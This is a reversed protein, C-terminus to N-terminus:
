SRETPQASFTTQARDSPPPMQHPPRQGNILFADWMGTWEFIVQLEHTKIGDGVVKLSFRYVGHVSTIKRFRTLSVEISLRFDAQEEETVLFEALKSTGGPIDLASFRNNEAGVWQVQFNEAYTTDSWENEASGMREIKTLLVRCGRAYFKSENEVGVRIYFGHNDKGKDPWFSRTIHKEDHPLTLLLRPRTFWKRFPEAILATAFGSIAGIIAPELSSTQPQAQLM